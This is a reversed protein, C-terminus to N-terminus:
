LKDIVENLSAEASPDVANTIMSSNLFTNFMKIYTELVAVKGESAGSREVMVVMDTSTEKVVADKLTQVEDKLEKVEEIDRQLAEVVQSISVIRRDIDEVQVKLAGTRPTKVEGM